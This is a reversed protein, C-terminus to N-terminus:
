CVTGAHALPPAFSHAPPTANTGMSGWGGLFAGTNYVTCPLRPGQNRNQM